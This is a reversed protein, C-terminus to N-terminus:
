EFSFVLLSFDDPFSERGSARQVAARLRAAEDTGPAAPQRVLAEFDELGWDQPGHDGLEYVGDSFVYLRDGARTMVRASPFAAGELVGIPPHPTRLQELTGDARRLLAPPHGASAYVLSGDAADHVGYWLTFFMGGHREMTFSEDLRALVEHPRAFDTSPLTQNKLVNVASASHMAASAGHGCVDLLYLALRRDDLAHYGFLDGGLVASPQYAWTARRGGGALPAPLLAALYARAKALDDHLERAHEIEARPRVELRLVQAGLQLISQARLETAATIRRGDVHTGNTSGLDSVVVREGERRVRCHIKSLGPDQFRLRCSTDRGITLTAPLEVCLGPREGDVLVLCPAHDLSEPPLVRADVITKELDM